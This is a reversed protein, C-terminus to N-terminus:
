YALPLFLRLLQAANNIFPNAPMTKEFRARNIAGPKLQEKLFREIEATDADIGAQRAKARLMAVRAEWTTSLFNTEMELQTYLFGLNKRRQIAEATQADILGPRAGETVSQNFLLTNKLRLNEKLDEAQANLLKTEAITKAASARAQAAQAAGTVGKVLSSGLEPLPVTSPNGGGQGYALAPNLGAKRMDAVTDQYRHKFADRQAKASAAGTIADLGAGLLPIADLPNM